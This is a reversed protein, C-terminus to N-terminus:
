QRGGCNRMADDLPEWPDDETLEAVTIAMLISGVETLSLEGREVMRRLARAERVKQREEGVARGFMFAGTVAAAIALSLLLVTM